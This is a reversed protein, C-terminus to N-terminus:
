FVLFCYTMDCFHSEYKDLESAQQSLSAAHQFSQNVLPEVAMVGSDLGEVMAILSQLAQEMRSSDGALEQFLVVGRVKNGLHLFHNPSYM